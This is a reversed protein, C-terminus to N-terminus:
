RRGRNRGGGGNQSGLAIAGAALAALVILMTNGGFGGSGGGGGSPQRSELETRLAILQDTVSQLESANSTKYNYTKTEVSQVATGDQARINTITFNSTLDVKTGTTTALFVPGEITSPDYTTNASWSGNPVNKALVLGTYTENQYEVDMTGSGNLDPTDYGSLALAGVSDYLSRNETSSTTGYEWMATQSSIVDSANITGSEYDAYTANIYTDSEAIVASKKQQITSWRESWQTVDIQVQSDYSDTPKRVHFTEFNENSFTYSDVSAKAYNAGIISANVDTGNVLTVTRNGNNPKLKYATGSTIGSGSPYMFGSESEDINSDNRMLTVAYDYETAFTNWRAVLNRQKVAYYEEIAKEAEYKAQAETSGNQYAEAVTVQMKSWAVTETDNAYNDFTSGFADIAQKESSMQSYIDVKTQESDTADYAELSTSDYYDAVCLIDEYGSTLPSMLYEIQRDLPNCQETVSAQAPQTMPGAVGATVLLCAFIASAIRNTNM